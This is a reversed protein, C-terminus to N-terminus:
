LVVGESEVTMAGPGLLALRQMCVGHFCLYPFLSAERMALHFSIVQALYRPWPKYVELYSMLKIEGMPIPSLLFSERTFCATCDPFASSRLVTLSPLAGIFLPWPGRFLLSSSSFGHYTLFPLQTPVGCFYSGLLPSLLWSMLQMDCLYSLSKPLDM